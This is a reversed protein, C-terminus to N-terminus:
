LNDYAVMDILFDSHVALLYQFQQPTLIVHVSWDEKNRRHALVPIKGSKAAQEKTQKIAAPFALREQRKVEVAVPLDTDGDEGGGRTQQLNRQFAPYGFLENMLNFFEREGRKGKDKGNVAM